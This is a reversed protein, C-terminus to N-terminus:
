IDLTMDIIIVQFSPGIMPNFPNTEIISGTLNHFRVFEYIIAGVMALASIYSFIPTRIPGLLLRKIPHRDYGYPLPQEQILLPYPSGNMPIPHQPPPPPPPTYYSQGPPTNEHYYPYPPQQQQQQYYNIPTGAPSPENSALKQFGGHTRRQLLEHSDWNSSSHHPIPPPSNSM